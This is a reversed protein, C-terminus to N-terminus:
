NIPSSKESVTRAPPHDVAVKRVRIRLREMGIVEVREGRQAFLRGDEGAAEDGELVATWLEGGLQVTGVPNLPSSVVGIRGILSSEGMRQPSRQARLAFTVATFFIGSLAIGTGIVLPVSVRQFNPVNPSNFLVLAGLIFSAAGAATLAGHTPAKIELIFLVFAVVLFLLGFWNVPLIGLGYTGLLLCSVGIFGAVWGGPSSLEILIAWVGVSLLLFAINPNALTALLSEAITPMIDVVEAGATNLTVTDERLRVERRDLQRLLDPLDAARLDILGIELAEDVSVARADDIMEDALQIAEPPRQAALSRATAKLMEKVKSEMTEGIDEGSAGVPSAAGITTEPAMAAVDGALTLITGASAATAGRPTVYVILPVPSSRMQQILRNMLEISGGPTDLEMIIAQAGSAEARTMARNLRETWTPHLPGQLRLTVVVPNNEPPTDQAFGSQYLSIVLSLTILVAFLLSTITTRIRM